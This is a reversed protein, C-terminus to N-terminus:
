REGRREEIWPAQDERNTMVELAFEQLETVTNNVERSLVQVQSVVNRIQATLETIEPDRSAVLGGRRRKTGDFTSSSENLM